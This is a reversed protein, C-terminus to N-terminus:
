KGVTVNVSAQEKSVAIDKQDHPSSYIKIRDPYQNAYQNQGYIHYGVPKGARTLVVKGAITHTKEGNVGEYTYFAVRDNRLGYSTMSEGWWNIALDHSLTLDRPYENRGM